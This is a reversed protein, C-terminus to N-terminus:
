AGSEAASQHSTSPRVRREVTGAPDFRVVVDAIALPEPRHTVLLVTRKGRLRAIALLVRQQSETDLGSTPEDLLLVPQRTAIARALSIWQREGGSVTRGGAGLRQGHLLPVLHGAGMADLAGAADAGLAGLTVNADLTDALLPADQPVWAFPRGQPGASAEVISEGDFLLDGSLARELGLLTRLLTTKGVGTPGALVVIAGADVRLSLSARAGRALRLSRLEMAALPWPRATESGVPDRARPLTDAPAAGRAREIVSRLEDYAAQGRTMALRADALERLPRYALFFAVAFLLLTKGDPAAGLWGARSGVIALVLAAAGLVENAGSLLAGRAQLSASSKAIGEGLARTTSRAKAEAGYTVWLDAHRVAEDAAELLQERQRAARQTARRYGARVQSLLWGFLALVLAAVAAMRGSIAVLLAGVPAIQALARAGGLFGQELGSEVDRVRETLSVVGSATGLASSGHDDHRPERLRHVALLADLLELRLAGGVEGAVRAQVFTAYAGAGGKVLVVALGLLSLVLANDATSGGLGLARPQDLVAARAGLRQTLSLAFAGAVLAMLAHGIAHMASAVLFGVLRLRGRLVRRVRQAYYGFVSKPPPTMEDKRREHHSIAAPGAM